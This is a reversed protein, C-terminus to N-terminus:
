IKILYMKRYRKNNADISILTKDKNFRPHLDTRREGTICCHSYISLLLEFMNDDTGALYLKQFGM